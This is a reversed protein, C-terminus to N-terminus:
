ISVSAFCKEKLQLQEQNLPYAVVVSIFSLLFFFTKQHINWRKEAADLLMKKQFKLSHHESQIRVWLLISSPFFDFFNLFISNYSSIGTALSSVRQYVWSPTQYITLFFFLILAYGDVIHIDFTYSICM